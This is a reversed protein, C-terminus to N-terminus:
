NLRPLVQHDLDLSLTKADVSPPIITRRGPRRRVVKCEPNAPREMPQKPPGPIHLRPLMKVRLKALREAATVKPKPTKVAAQEPSREADKAPCCRVNILKGTSYQTKSASTNDQGRVTNMQAKTASQPPTDVRRTCIRTRCRKQAEVFWDHAMAEDPTM